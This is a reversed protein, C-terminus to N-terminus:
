LAEVAGFAIGYVQARSIDWSSEPTSLRFLGKANSVVVAGSATSRIAPYIDMTAVGSGNTSVTNLVKHLRSSSGSGLQIYDGPLLYTSANATAGSITLSQSGATGTSVVPSGPATSATGRATAGLPDGLLFTGYPGNLKLLFAIWEEADARLLSPLTIDAEWTQGPFKYIQSSFSFPSQSVAVANRAVLRITALGGSPLSLPYTIAM